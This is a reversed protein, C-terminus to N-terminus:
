TFYFSMALEYGLDYALFNVDDVFHFVSSDVNLLHLDCELLTGSLFDCLEIDTNNGSKWPAATTYPTIGFM